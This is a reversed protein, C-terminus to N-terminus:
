FNFRFQLGYTRPPNVSVRQVAWRNSVFLEAREDWVNDVFFSAGWADGDLGIRLDGTTYADQLVPPNGSVVSEIGELSNVSEGVYAYASYHMCADIDHEAVIKAILQKDGISGEYFPVDNPVAERHGYVLNDLVVVNEGRNTLDEVAVSGIYGAGGTVLVGM